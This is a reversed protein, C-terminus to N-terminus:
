YAAGTFRRAEEGVGWVGTGVGVDPRQFWPSVRDCLGLRLVSCLCFFVAVIRSSTLSHPKLYYLATIAHKGPPRSLFVLTM